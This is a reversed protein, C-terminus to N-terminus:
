QKIFTKSATGHEDTWRLTYWGQPLASIDIKEFDGNIKVQRWLKGTKDFIAIMGSQGKELQIHIQDRAPIPFLNSATFTETEETSTLNDLSLNDICFFLPTNIGNDGVDSSTMTFLLSDAEGLEDLSVATWDNIIYDQTNDEFRYDALYFEVSDAYLSDQLYKRITLKFFDPDNGDDGGFKKAFDDGDRMSNHAYTANTIRVSLPWRNAYGLDIVANQQGVAYNMSGEYGIAPKASFLNTFDSTISDTKSSVAWGSAWYSFGGTIFTNPFFVEAIEFGGSQDSGDWFTDQELQIEEFNITVAQAILNSMWLTFVLITFLQKM